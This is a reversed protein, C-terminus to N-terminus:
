WGYHVGLLCRGRHLFWILLAQNYVIIQSGESENIFQFVQLGAVVGADKTAQRQAKNFCAPVTVIHPSLTHVYTCIQPPRQLAQGSSNKNM